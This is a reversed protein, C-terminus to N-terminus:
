NYLTYFHDIALRLIFSLILIENTSLPNGGSATTNRKGRSPSSITKGGKPPLTSQGWGLAVIPYFDLDKQEAERERKEQYQVYARIM